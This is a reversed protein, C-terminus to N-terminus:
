FQHPAVNDLDFYNKDFYIGQGVYGPGSNLIFSIYNQQVMWFLREKPLQWPSHQNSRLVLPVQACDAGFINGYQKSRSM